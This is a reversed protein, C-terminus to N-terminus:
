AQEGHRRNDAVSPPKSDSRHSLTAPMVHRKNALFGAAPRLFRRHIVAGWFTACRLLKPLARWIKNYKVHDTKM